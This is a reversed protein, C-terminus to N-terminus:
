QSPTTTVTPSPAASGKPAPVGAAAPDFATDVDSIVWTRNFMSMGLKVTYVSKKGDGNVRTVSYNLTANTTQNGTTKIYTADTVGGYKSDALNAQAVLTDIPLQLRLTPSFLVQEVTDYKQAEVATWFNSGTTSPDPKQNILNLGAYGSVACFACLMFSCVFMVLALLISNPRSPTSPPVMSMFEERMERLRVVREFREARDEGRKTQDQLEIQRLEEEIEKIRKKAERLEEPSARHSKAEAVMRRNRDRM